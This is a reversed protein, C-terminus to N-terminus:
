SHTHTLKPMLPSSPDLVPLALYIMKLSLNVEQMMEQFVYKLNFCFTLVCHRGTQFIICKFHFMCPVVVVFFFLGSLDSDPATFSSFLGRKDNRKTETGSHGQTLYGTTVPITVLM